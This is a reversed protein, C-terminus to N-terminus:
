DPYIKPYMQHEYPKGPTVGPVVGTPAHVAVGGFPDHRVTATNGRNDRYTEVGGTYTQSSAGYGGPGTCSTSGALYTKCDALASTSLVLLGVFLHHSLKLM